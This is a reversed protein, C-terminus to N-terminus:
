AMRSGRKSPLRPDVSDSGDGGVRAEGIKGSGNLLILTGRRHLPGGSTAAPPRSSAVEGGRSQKSHLRPTTAWREGGSSSQLDDAGLYRGREPAQVGGARGWGVRRWWRGWGSSPNVVGVAKWNSSRRSRMGAAATKGSGLFGEDSVSEDAVHKELWQYTVTTRDPLHSRCDQRRRLLPEMGAADPSCVVDVLLLCLRGIICCRQGHPSAQRPPRPSLLWPRPLRNQIRHAM